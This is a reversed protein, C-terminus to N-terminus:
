GTRVPEPCKPPIFRAPWDGATNLGTGRGTTPPRLPPPPDPLWELPISQIPLYYYGM